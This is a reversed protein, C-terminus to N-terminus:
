LELFNRILAMGFRHSKEPHFQVGYLNDRGIAATIKDGYSTTAVVNAPDNCVVHYSHVFYFRQEELAPSLLDNANCINLTNWGMHPVKFGLDLLPNIRKVDANFWGLGPLVGEASGECMLQMGLCIGLIPIQGQKAIDHFPHLWGGEELARMGADFSGVGAIIIRRAHYLDQPNATIVASGGVKHVMNSVAVLNGIPLDPIIVQFAQSM